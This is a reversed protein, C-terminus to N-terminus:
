TKDQSHRATAHLHQSAVLFTVMYAMNYFSDLKPEKFIKFINNRYLLTVKECYYSVSM